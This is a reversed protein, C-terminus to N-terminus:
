PGDLSVGSGEYAEICTRMDTEVGEVRVKHVPVINKGDESVCPESPYANCEDCARLLAAAYVNIFSPRSDRAERLATIGRVKATVYFNSKDEIADQHLLIPDDILAALAGRDTEVAIIVPTIDQFDSM